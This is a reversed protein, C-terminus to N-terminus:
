SFRMEVPLVQCHDNDQIKWADNVCTILIESVGGVTQSRWSTLRLSVQVLNDVADEIQVGAIDAQAVRCVDGRQDSLPGQYDLYRRRHHPLIEGSICGGPISPFVDTAITWLPGDDIEFLWDFHDFRRRTSVYSASQCFGPGVDHKLLAFRRKTM